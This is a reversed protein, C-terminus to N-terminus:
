KRRRRAALAMLALLSLTGTTPEPVNSVKTLGFADGQAYVMFDGQLSVGQTGARNFMQGYWMGDYGDGGYTLADFEPDLAVILNLTEGDGLNNLALLTDDDLNVLGGNTLDITLMSGLTLAKDGGGNVNLTSDGLLTLDAYVAAEAGKLVGSVTITGEEQEGDMLTVANGPAIDLDVVSVTNSTQGTMVIDGGAARLTVGDAVNGNLVLGDANNNVIEKVVLSNAIEVGTDGDVTMTDATVQADTQALSYTIAQEGTNTVKVGDTASFVVDGSTVQNDLTATKDAAIQMSDFDTLGSIKADDSVSLYMVEAGEVFNVTGGNATVFAMFDDVNLVGDGSVVVATCAGDHDEAYQAIASVNVAGDVQSYGLYRVSEGSTATGDANITYVVSDQTVKHGNPTLTATPANNVITISDGSTAEFGNGDTSFTGNVDVFGSAGKTVTFGTATIDGTFTLTGNNAIATGVLGGGAISLSGGEAVTGGTLTNGTNSLTVANAGTSISSNTLKNGITVAKTATVDAGSITFTTNGVGYQGNDATTTVSGGGNRGVLSLGANTLALKGGELLEVHANKSMWMGDKVTAAGDAAIKVTATCAGNNSLDLEHGVSVDGHIELIGKHPTLNNGITAGNKIVTTGTSNDGTVFKNVKIQGEFTTTQNGDDKTLTYDAGTVDGSITVSSHKSTGYVQITADGALVIDNTFVPADVAGDNDGFLLTSGSGLQLTQNDLNSRYDVKGNSVALVGSSDSMDFRATAGGLNMTVTGDNSAVRTWDAETATGTFTVSGGEMVNIVGDGSGTGGALTQDASISWAGDAGVSYAEVGEVALSTFLYAGEAVDVSPSTLSGPTAEDNSIFVVSDAQIGGAVVDANVTVESYVNFQAVDGEEFKSGDWNADEYNWKGTGAGDTWIKAASTTYSITGNTGFTWSKGATGGDITINETTLGMSVLDVATGSFLTYTYTGSSEAATLGNLNFVLNAGKTISGGEAVNIAQHGFIVAGGLTLSGGVTISKGEAQTLGNAISSDGNLVVSGGNLTLSKMNAAGTFTLTGEGTKTLNHDGDTGYIMNGVSLEGAAAVQITADSRLQIKDITNNTNEAFISGGYTNFGKSDNSSTIKSYGHMAINTKMTASNTTTQNLELTAIKGSEGTLIINKTANGGWGFADHHETVKFTGGAKIDIDGSVCGNSNDAGTANVVGGDGITLTSVNQRNSGINLTANAVSVTGSFANTIGTGLTTTGAAINLAGAGTLGNLTLEATGNVTATSGSAISLSGLTSNSNVTITSTKGKAEVTSLTSSSRTIAQALDVTAGDTNLFYTTYNIGDEIAVKGNGDLNYTNGGYVVKSLNSQGAGTNKIISCAVAGVFGNDAQVGTYDEYTAAFDDFGSLDTGLTVTDSAFTLTGANTITHSLGTVAASFTVTSDSQIALSSDATMSITGTGVFAVTGGGTISLAGSVTKAYKGSNLTFTAGSGVNWTQTGMFTMTGDSSAGSTNITFNGKIDSRAATATANGIYVARSGGSATITYGANEAIIGGVSLPTFTYKMNTNSGADTAFRITNLDKTFNTSGGNAILEKITPDWKTIETGYIYGPDGQTTKKWGGYALDAQGSGGNSWTYVDGSYTQGDLVTSAAAQPLTFGVATIAAILAARLKANIRLKM